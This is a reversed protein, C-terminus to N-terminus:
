ETVESVTKGTLIEFMKECTKRAHEDQIQDIEKVLENRSKDSIKPRRLTNERNWLTKGDEKVEKVVGVRNKIINM